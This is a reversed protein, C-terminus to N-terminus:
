DDRRTRPATRGVFFRRLYLLFAFHALWTTVLAGLFLPDGYIASVDPAGERQAANQFDARMIAIAGYVLGAIQLILLTWWGSEKLRYLQVAVVACLAAMTLVVLSAAAGAVVDGFLALVPNGVNALLTIASFVLIMVMALVPLPVRDTWRPTPDLVEVTARVTPSRYFLFLVLPLVIGFGAGVAGACGFGLTPRPLGEMVRPLILVIMLTAVFGGAMWIASVVVSLARAWRRGRISGVGVTVFYLAAIGYVVIASAVGSRMPTTRQALEAGAIVALVLLGCILGILIQLVGFGILGGRRAESM